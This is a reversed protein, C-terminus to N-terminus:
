DKKRSGQGTASSTWIKRKGTSSVARGEESDHTRGFRVTMGDTKGTRALLM